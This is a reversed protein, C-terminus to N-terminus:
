ISATMYNSGFVNAENNTHNKIRYFFNPCDTFASKM